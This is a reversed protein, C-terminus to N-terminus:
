KHFRGKHWRLSDRSSFAKDCHDCPLSIGELHNAEIHNKINTVRDEKGCVKCIFAKEKKPIGSAKRGHSVFNQSKEMM